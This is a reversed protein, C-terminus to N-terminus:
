LTSARAMTLPLLSPGAMDLNAEPEEEKGHNPSACLNEGVQANRWGAWM